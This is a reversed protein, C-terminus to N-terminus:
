AADEFPPPEDGLHLHNICRLGIRQALLLEAEMGTSLRGGVLVIVDCRRMVAEGDEMGRARQAPDSDDLVECYPLWSLVFAVDRHNRILWRLWRKARALNGAVDGGVPHAVYAVTRRM